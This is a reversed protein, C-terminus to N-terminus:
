SKPDFILFCVIIAEDEDGELLMPTVPDDKCTERIKRFMEDPKGPLHGSFQGVNGSSKHGTTAMM